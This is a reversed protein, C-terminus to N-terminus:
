RSDIVGPDGEMSDRIALTAESELIKRSRAVVQSDGPGAVQGRLQFREQHRTFVTDSNVNGHTAVVLFQNHAL